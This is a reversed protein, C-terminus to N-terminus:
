GLDSYYIVAERGNSLTITSQPPNSIFLEIDEPVITVKENSIVTHNFSSYATHKFGAEIFPVLTEVLHGLSVTHDDVMILSLKGEEIPFLEKVENTTTMKSEGM